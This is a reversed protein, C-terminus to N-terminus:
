HILPVGVSCGSERPLGKSQVGPASPYSPSWTLFRRHRLISPLRRLQSDRTGRAELQASLGDSRWSHTPVKLFADIGSFPLSPTAAPQGQNGQSGVARRSRISCRLEGSRNRLEGTQRNAARSDARSEGVRSPQQSRPPGVSPEFVSGATPPARHPTSLSPTLVHSLSSSLPFLLLSLRRLLLLLMLMLLISPHSCSGHM